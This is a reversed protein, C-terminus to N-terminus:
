AILLNAVNFAAHAMIPAAIRGTREYLLGWAVGLVVLTAVGGVRAGEPLAPLHILAFLCATVAVAPRVGIGTAKLGQQLFGRWLFEEVVPAGIAAGAIAAWWWPDGPGSAQIALLTEHGVQPPPAGMWRQVSAIAGGIGQTVPWALLAVAAAMLLAEGVGCPHRHVGGRAVVTSAGRARVGPLFWIVAVVLLQAAQSGLAGAAQRPLAGAGTGGDVIGFARWAAWAGAASALFAAAFAAMSPEARLPWAPGVRPLLAFWRARWLVGLALVGAVTWAVVAWPAPTGADATSAAGAGGVSEQAFATAGAAM